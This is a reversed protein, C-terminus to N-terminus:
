LTLKSLKTNSWSIIRLQYKAKNEDSRHKINYQYQLSFIERLWEHSTFRHPFQFFIQCSWSFAIILVLKALRLLTESSPEKITRQDFFHRIDMTFLLKDQGLFHFERVIELAHQSNKIYSPWAKVIPTM